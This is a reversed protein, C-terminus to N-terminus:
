ARFRQCIMCAIHLGKEHPKSASASMTKPDLKLIGKKELMKMEHCFENCQMSKRKKRSKPNVDPENNFQNAETENGNMTETENNEFNCDLDEEPAILTAM